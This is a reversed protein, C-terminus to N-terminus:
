KNLPIKASTNSYRINTSKLISCRKFNKSLQNADKYKPIKEEPINFLEYNETIKKSKSDM